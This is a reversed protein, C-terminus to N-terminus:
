LRNLLWPNNLLFLCTWFCKGSLCFFCPVACSGVVFQCLSSFSFSKICLSMLILLVCTLEIRYIFWFEVCFCLFVSLRFSMTLATLYMCCICVCYLIYLMLIETHFLWTAGGKFWYGSDGRPQYIHHGEVERKHWWVPQHTLPLEQVDRLNFPLLSLVVFADGVVSHSRGILALNLNCDVTLIQRQSVNCGPGLLEGWGPGATNCCLSTNNIYM